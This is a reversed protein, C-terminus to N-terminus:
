KKQAKYQLGDDKKIETMTAGVCFGHSTLMQITPAANGTLTAVVGAPLSTQGKKPNNKGQATAKGKGADGSKYQLKFIGHASAAKDKYGWGKAGLAKWCLDGDCLPGARDVLLQEVLGGQDDYICVTAATDSAVPDGFDGQTTSMTVKKWQLKAKEKGVVKESYQLKAQAAGFCNSQPAAACAVDPECVDGIEDCVEGAACPTGTSSCDALPDCYETGTCFHADDPCHTDNPTSVCEDTGEDCSDDTCAVGDDCANPTGGGCAGAGDCMEDLTCYLLDDCSTGTLELNPECTGALCSDPDDCTTDSPDGCPSGDAELTCNAACCDGPDTNGDDCEEGVDLTGDGCSAPVNCVNGIEDCVETASCPDGTSSCNALPDCYETGTCFQTDDPCHTDNPTSVCEDTGEDCSDDTCAVGDDCANPTGGGCAGAGDCTEDLTCYLLDDCAWGPPELNLQCVGAACTDPNDCGNDTPNGCATGDFELNLVCVGLMCTDPNDCATDTPDGCATGDSELTCDAACCDGSDTNGDDCEEGAELAGDGCISVQCDPDNADFLGDGDNDLGLGLTGGAYDENFAPSPSCPDTPKTPHDADPTFYYPPAVDEGATVFALPDTDLHCGACTTVGSNFHHQRLGAGDGCVESNTPAPCQSPDGGQAPDCPLPVPNQFGVCDDPNLGRDEARGHCGMCAIPDLGTGGSSDNLAVERGQTGQGGHCTSCDRDLMLDRHVDHLDDGWSGDKPSTYQGLFYGHCTACNGSGSIGISYTDFAWAEDTATVTIWAAGLGLMALLFVYSRKSM